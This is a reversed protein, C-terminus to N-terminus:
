LECRFLMQPDFMLPEIDTLRWVSGSIFRIIETYRFNNKWDEHPTNSQYYTFYLEKGYKQIERLFGPIDDLYELLGFATLVNDETTVDPYIEKNFDGYLVSELEVNDICSYKKYEIFKKLNGNGGGLDVYNRNKPLYKAIRRVRHVWKHYDRMSM